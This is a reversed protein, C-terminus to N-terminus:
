EGIALMQRVLSKWGDSRKHEGIHGTCIIKKEGTKLTVWVEYKYSSVEALESINQFTIVLM